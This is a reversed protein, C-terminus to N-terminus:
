KNLKDPNYRFYINGENEILIDTKDKDEPDVYRLYWGQISDFRSNIISPYGLEGNKIKYDIKDEYDDAGISYKLTIIEDYNKNHNEDYRLSKNYYVEKYVITQDPYREEMIKNIPEFKTYYESYKNSCGFLMFTSLISLTIFIKRM